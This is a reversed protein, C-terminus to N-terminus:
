KEGKNSFLECLTRLDPNDFFITYDIEEGYDEILRVLMSIAQMSSGGLTFFNDEPQVHDLKLLEGWLGKIYAEVLSYDRNQGM